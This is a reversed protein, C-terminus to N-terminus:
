STDGILRLQEPTAPRGYELEFREAPDLMALAEGVHWGDDEDPVWPSSLLWEPVEPLPTRPPEEELDWPPGGPDWGADQADFM